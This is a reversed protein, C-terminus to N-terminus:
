LYSKPKFTIPPGFVKPYQAEGQYSVEARYGNFHDAVYNVTQQRGDPLQVTYSGKVIKGDSAENHGFDTGHYNDNVGYNFSYPSPDENYHQPFAVALGALFALAAVKSIM